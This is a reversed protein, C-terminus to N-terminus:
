RHQARFYGITGSLHLTIDTYGAEALWTRVETPTASPGLLGALRGVRRVPLTRLGGRSWPPLNLLASGTLVGGAHTVRGLEHLARRPDPFCHLGTFSVVLDFEGDEFPLAGVDAIRPEVQDAVGRERAADTTRDLMRQSIDAAVYRLGQGPRLGRLAVGGGCPVDLVASGAPQRGIEAAADYLRRLDSGIGLRWLAGGAHPHEVSWDYVSAWLPDDGWGGLGPLRLGAPM